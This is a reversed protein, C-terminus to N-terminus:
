DFAVELGSGRLRKAMVEAFRKTQEASLHGRWDGSQGKRFHSTGGQNRLEDNAADSDHRQKMEGFSSAHVIRELFAVEDSVGPPACFAAVKRVSELPQALMEEYRVWLVQEPHAVSMQWWGLTHSFWDGKSDKGEAGTAASMPLPATGGLFDEFWDDWSGEYSIGKISKSHYYLSVMVDRPDRVVIVAKAHRPLSTDSCGAVPLDEWAAHTKFIRPAPLQRLKALSFVCTAVAAEVYPARMQIDVEPPEGHLMCIVQQMWTTGSKPFTSIFIDGPQAALGQRLAQTIIRTRLQTARAKASEAHLQLTAKQFADLAPEFRQLLEAQVRGALICAEALPKGGGDGALSAAEVALSWAEEAHGLEVLVEGLACHPAEHPVGPPQPEQFLRKALRGAELAEQLLRSRKPHSQEPATAELRLANVLTLQVALLKPQLKAAAQAHQLSTTSQDLASYCTALNVHAQWNSADRKLVQQFSGVAAEHDGGNLCAVGHLLWCAPFNGADRHVIARDALERARGLDGLGLATQAGVCLQQLSENSSAGQRAKPKKSDAPAATPAPKPSLPQAPPPAPPQSCRHKWSTRERSAHSVTPQSM